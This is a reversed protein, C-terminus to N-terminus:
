KYDDMEKKHQADISMHKWKLAMGKKGQSSQQKETEQKRAM